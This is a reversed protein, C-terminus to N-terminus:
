VQAPHGPAYRLLAESAKKADADTSRREEVKKALVRMKSKLMANENYLAVYDNTLPELFEDVSAMDYGGFRARAFSVEDIQQPTFM